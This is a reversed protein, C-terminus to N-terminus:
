IGQKLEAVLRSKGLGAEGILSVIQGHGSAVAALADQLQTLERERGILEARLGEIGRAKRPQPLIGAVAYTQVPQPLGQIPLSLPAFEFAGRSQYHTTEGVLLQGPQAQEQLRAALNVVPGIVTREQHRESGVAGVYVVGSN